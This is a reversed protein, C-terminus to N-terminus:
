WRRRGYSSRVSLCGGLRIGAATACTSAPAVSASLRRRRPLVQPKAIIQVLGTAEPHANIQLAPRACEGVRLKVAAFWRRSRRTAPTILLEHRPIAGHDTEFISCTM